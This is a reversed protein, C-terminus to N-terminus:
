LYTAPRPVTLVAGDRSTRVTRNRHRPPLSIAVYSATWRPLGRAGAVLRSVQYAATLYTQTPPLAVATCLLAQRLLGACPVVLEVHRDGSRGRGPAAQRKRHKATGPLPPPRIVDLPRRPM